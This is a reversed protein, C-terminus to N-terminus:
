YQNSLTITLGIIEPLFDRPLPPFPSARSITAMCADDFEQLGSSQEVRLEIVRGSAIVEFYIMCSVTGDIAFPVRYSQNIKNFALNFWYPYAFSADGVTAGAIAGGTPADVEVNGDDTGAQDQDGTEVQATTPQPPDPEKPEPEEEPEEIEAAPKTTPDELAIEEPEAQVAQPTPADPIPAIEVEQPAPMSVVGVRIVDAFEPPRKINLPSAFLTVAIAVTHLIASLLIDRGV